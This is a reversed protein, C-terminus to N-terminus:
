KISQLERSIEKIRGAFREVFKTYASINKWTAPKWNVKKFNGSDELLNAEMDVINEEIFGLISEMADASTAMVALIKTMIERATPDLKEIDTNIESVTTFITDIAHQNAKNFTTSLM